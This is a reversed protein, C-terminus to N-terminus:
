APTIGIIRARGASALVSGDAARLILRTSGRGFGAELSVTTQARIYLRFYHAERHGDNIHLSLCDADWYMLVTVNGPGLDLLECGDPLQMTIPLTDLAPPDQGQLARAPGPASGGALLAAALCAAAAVRWGNFVLRFSM